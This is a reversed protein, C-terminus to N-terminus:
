ENVTSKSVLNYQEMLFVYVSMIDITLTKDYKLNARYKNHTNNLIYPLIGVTYVGTSRTSKIDIERQEWDIGV